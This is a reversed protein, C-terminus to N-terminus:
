GSLESGIKIRSEAADTVASKRVIGLDDAQLIGTTSRRVKNYHGFKREVEARVDNLRTQANIKNNAFEQRKIFANFEQALQTIEDNVQQVRVDVNDVGTRVAKIGDLTVDLRQEIGSIDATQIIREAM